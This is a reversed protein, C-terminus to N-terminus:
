LKRFDVTDLSGYYKMELSLLNPNQEIIKKKEVLNISLRNDFKISDPNLNKFESYVKISVMTFNIVLSDKEILFTGTLKQVSMSTDANATRYFNNAQVEYLTLKQNEFEIRDFRRSKISDLRIDFDSEFVKTVPQENKNSVLGCGILLFGFIISLYKSNM